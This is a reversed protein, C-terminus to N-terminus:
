VFRNQWEEVIHDRWDSRPVGLRRSLMRQEEERRRAEAQLREEELRQLERNRRETNSQILTQQFDQNLISPGGRYSLKARKEETALKKAEALQAAYMAEFASRQDTAGGQPPLGIYQMSDDHEFGFMSCFWNWLANM